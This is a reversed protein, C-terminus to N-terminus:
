AVDDVSVPIQEGDEKSWDYVEVQTPAPMGEGTAIRAINEEVYARSSTGDIKAELLSRSDIPEGEALSWKADLAGEDFDPEKGTVEIPEDTEAPWVELGGPDMPKLYDPTDSQTEPM